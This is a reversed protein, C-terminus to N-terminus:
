QWSLIMAAPGEGSGASYFAVGAGVAGSVLAPDADVPSLLKGEAGTVPPWFGPYGSGEDSGDIRGDGDLDVRVALDSNGFADVLTSRTADTEAQHITCFAIRRHNGGLASEPASSPIPDGALNLRGTLAPAFRAPDLKGDTAVVPYHGYEQRYMEMAAAWRVFRAKTELKRAHVLVTGATPILIGALLGIVAIVTLLEVLTFGYERRPHPAAPTSQPM